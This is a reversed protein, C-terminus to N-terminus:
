LEVEQTSTYEDKRERLSQMATRLGNLIEAEYDKAAQELGFSATQGNIQNIAVPGAAPGNNQTWRMSLVPVGFSAMKKVEDATFDSVVFGVHYRGNSLSRSVKVKM